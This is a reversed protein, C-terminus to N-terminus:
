MNRLEHEGHAFDCNDGVTCSGHQQFHRCLTTKYKQINNGRNQYPQQGGYGGYFGGRGRGASGGVQQTSGPVYQQQFSPYMPAGMM